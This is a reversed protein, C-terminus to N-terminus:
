EFKYVDHSTISFTVVGWVKFDMENTIKLPKYKQNGAVLWVIDKDAKDFNVFKILFEGNLCCLIKRGHKIEASRDVIVLDGDHIYADNMSDGDAIGYFTANPKRVLTKNLDIKKAM